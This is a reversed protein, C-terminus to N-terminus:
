GRRGRKYYTARLCSRCFWGKGAVLFYRRESGKKQCAVCRRDSM